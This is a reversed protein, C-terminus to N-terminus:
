FAFFDIDDDLDPTKDAPGRPQDTLKCLAPTPNDPEVLIVDVGIKKIQRWPMVIEDNKAFLSLLRTPGPIVIAEVGGRIIDIEIDRIFGLRKGDQCNIVDKHRLDSIRLM